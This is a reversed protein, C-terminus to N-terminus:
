GLKTSREGLCEFRRDLPERRRFGNGSVLAIPFVADGLDLDKVSFRNDKHRRLSASSRRTTKECDTPL